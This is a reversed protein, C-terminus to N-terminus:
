RNKQLINYPNFIYYILAFPVYNCFIIGFVKVWFFKHVKSHGLNFRIKLNGHWLRKKISKLTNKRLM